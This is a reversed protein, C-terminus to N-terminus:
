FDGKLLFRKMSYHPNHCLTCAKPRSLTHGASSLQDHCSICLTKTASRTLSPHSSGHPDHCYLCKGAAVPGHVHPHILALAKHCRYCLAADSLDGDGENEGHCPTCTNELLPRHFVYPNLGQTKMGFVFTLRASRDDARVEVENVVGAATLAVSFSDGRRRVGKLPQGNHLFSAQRTGAPLRGAVVVPTDLIVSGPWPSVFVVGGSEKKEAGSLAAPDLLLAAVLIGAPFRVAAHM